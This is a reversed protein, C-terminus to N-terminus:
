AFSAAGDGDPSPRLAADDPPTRYQDYLYFACVVLAHTIRGSVILGPVADPAVRTVDIIETGELHQQEVRRADLALYTHCENNQIAPNPAVSGIYVIEDTDYGTEERMERRAAEAPTEDPDVMGGPVELTVAETGHRYQEIFVLQGDPTVPIINVWDPSEIVYFAHEEGTEPSRSQDERVRFVKFRGREISDIREWPQIM